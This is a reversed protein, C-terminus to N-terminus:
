RPPLFNIKKGESHIHYAYRSGSSMIEVKQDPHEQEKDLEYYKELRLYMKNFPYYAILNNVPAKLGKHVLNTVIQGDHSRLSYRNGKLKDYTFGSLDATFLNKESLTKEPETLFLAPYIDGPKGSDFKNRFDSLLYWSDTLGSNQFVLLNGDDDEIQSGVFVSKGFGTINYTSDSSKGWYYMQDSFKAIYASGIKSATEKIVLSKHINSRVYAVTSGGIQRASYSDVGNGSTLINGAKYYSAGNQGPIYIVASPDTSMVELEGWKSMNSTVTYDKAKVWM